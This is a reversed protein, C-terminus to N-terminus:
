ATASFVHVSAPILTEDGAEWQRVLEVLTEAVEAARDTANKEELLRVAPGVRMAFAAVDAARGPFGLRLARTAVSVDHFGAAELWTVVRASNAFRMPGPADPDPPVAPPGVHRVVAEAPLRFLPNMSPGDWAVFVFRGGPALAARINAFAAGTDAFFMVGFRSLALDYPGGLEGTQADAVLFEVNSLGGEAARSRAFDVLPESIDAGTVSGDPEM